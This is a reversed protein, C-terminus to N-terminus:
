ARTHTFWLRRRLQHVATPAKDLGAFTSVSCNLKWPEGVRYVLRPYPPVCVISVRLQVTLRVIVVVIM